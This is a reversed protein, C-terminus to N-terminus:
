TLWAGESDEFGMDVKSWGKMTRVGDVEVYLSEIGDSIRNRYITEHAQNIRQIEEESLTVLKINEVIRAKSSSKPIVTIGRQVAWSLSVVGTSTNHAEAINIFLEHSLIPNTTPDREGGLTSWSMVQIGKSQCYPVLKLNPNLAHLEIQNIAPIITTNALLVELTKQTFNSVGIARCRPGVLEEMKKWTDVTTPGEHPLVVKKDPTTAWPWHMLFVDIYALGMDALSIRLAEAPDHHWEGWFKTVITIEERPVGSARIAEGVNAEVGYYQATDILRYGSQLAHIISEHLAKADETGFGGQWTGLGVAPFRAGNNLKFTTSCVTHNESM